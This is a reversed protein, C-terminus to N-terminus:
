EVDIERVIPEGREDISLLEEVRKEAGDLTAQSARSLKVGEEFLRLSQELPLDGAELAEVIESLRRISDEFSGAPPASATEETGNGAAAVKRSAM